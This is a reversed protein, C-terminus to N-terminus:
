RESVKEFFCAIKKLEDINATLVQGHFVRNDQNTARFLAIAGEIDEVLAYETSFGNAYLKVVKYEEGLTEKAVEKITQTQTM